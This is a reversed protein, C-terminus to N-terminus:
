RAAASSPERTLTLSAQRSGAFPLNRAGVAARHPLADLHSRTRSAQAETWRRTEDSTADELWRYEETVDVGHYTTTTPRRPTEVPPEM